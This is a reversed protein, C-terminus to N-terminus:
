YDLDPILEFAAKRLFERTYFDPDVIQGNWVIIDLDITRPNYQHEESKRGLKLELRKLYKKLEQFSLITEIYVSGNIYKDQAKKGVPETIVFRSKGLITFDKALIRKTKQIYLKPHINSGLGIVGKNSM